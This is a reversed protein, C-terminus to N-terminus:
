SILAAFTLLTRPFPEPFPEPFPNESPNQFPPRSHTKCYSLTRLLTKLLPESFPHKWFTGLVGGQLTRAFRLTCVTFQSPRPSPATSFPTLLLRFLRMFNQHTTKLCFPNKYFHRFRTKGNKPRKQSTRFNDQNQLFSRASGTANKKPLHFERGAQTKQNTALTDEDKDPKATGHKQSMSLRHRDFGGEGALDRAASGWGNDIPRSPSQHDWAQQGSVASLMWAVRSLRNKKSWFTWNNWHSRQQCGCIKAPRSRQLSQFDGKRGKVVGALWANAPSNAQM